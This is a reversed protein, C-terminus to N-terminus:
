TKRCPSHVWALRSKLIMSRQRTGEGGAVESAAAAAASEEEAEPGESKSPRGPRCVRPNKLAKQIGTPDLYSFIM